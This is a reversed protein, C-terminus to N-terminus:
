PKSGLKTVYEALLQVDDLILRKIEELAQMM